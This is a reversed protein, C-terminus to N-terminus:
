VRYLCEKWGSREWGKVFEDESFQKVAWRRACSRMSLQKDASLTLIEHMASAFMEPTLAHYGIRHVLFLNICFHHSYYFLQGTPLGEFPVIIDVLPGGSKHALPIVGAAQHAYLEPYGISRIQQFRVMFEVINIGFHEDVM